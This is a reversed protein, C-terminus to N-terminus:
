RLIHIPKGFNRHDLGLEDDTAENLEEALAELAEESSTADEGFMADAYLSGIYEAIEYCLVVAPLDPRDETLQRTYFANVFGCEGATFLVDRPMHLDDFVASALDELFNADELLKQIDAYEEVDEYEVLAKTAPQQEDELVHPALLKALSAEAEEYEIGCRYQRDASLGHREAREAFVAKGSGHMMCITAFARQRALSHSDFMREDQIAGYEGMGWLFWNTAVSDLYRSAKEDDEGDEQNLLVLTAITDAADEERGLIPLELQDVLLHGIEHLMVGTVTGLVFENTEGKQAETLELAAANASIAGAAM